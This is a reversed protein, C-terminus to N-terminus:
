DMQYYMGADYGMDSLAKCMAEANVTRGYGQCRSNPSFVFRSKYWEYAGLSEVNRKNWRPLRITPSDFNCTGGDNYNHLAMYHEEAERGVAKAIELDEQLKKYKGTIKVPKDWNFGCVFEHYVKEADDFSVSRFCKIEAGNKHMAMVEFKGDLEALDVIVAKGNDDYLEIHYNNNYM